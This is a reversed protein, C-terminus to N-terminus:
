FRLSFNTGWSLEDRSAGGPPTERGVQSGNDAGAAEVHAGAAGMRAGAAGVRATGRWRDGTLGDEVDAGIIRNDPGQALGIVAVYNAVAAGERAATMALAVNMRSDDFQGDYYVVGGRLRRGPLKRAVQVRLQPFRERAM